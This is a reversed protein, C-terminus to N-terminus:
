GSSRRCARRPCRRGSRGRRCGPSRRGPSAPAKADTSSTSAATAEALAAKALQPLGRQGLARRDQELVALQQVGVTVLDGLQDGGLVALHVGVRQALDRAAHLDHLQRAPDRLELALQGSLNGGPDVDGRDALREAHDRADRREVERGHHRHPHERQRDGAAVGEHELGALLVGRGGVPQGLEGGLRTQRVADEVDHLAVLRGHVTEQLVRVDVATEKTPEVGIALYMWSSPMSCPLRTCARPPALFWMSTRGSASRSRAASWAMLAAYPEAPSRQM